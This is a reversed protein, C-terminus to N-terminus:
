PSSPRARATYVDGGRGGAGIVSSKLTTVKPTVGIPVSKRPSVGREIWSRRSGGPTTCGGRGGFSAGTGANVKEGVAGAISVFTTKSADPVCSSPAAHPIVHVYEHSKPSPSLPAPM